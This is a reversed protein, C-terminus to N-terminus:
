RFLSPVLQVLLGRLAADLLTIVLGIILVFVVIALSAQRVQAFDPWTTKHRVEHYSERMFTLASQWRSQAVAEGAM